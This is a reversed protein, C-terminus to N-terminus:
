DSHYEIGHDAMESELASINQTLDAHLMCLEDYTLITAPGEM